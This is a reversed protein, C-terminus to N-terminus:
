QWESVTRPALPIRNPRTSDSRSQQGAGLPRNIESSAADSFRHGPVFGPCHVGIENPLGAEVNYNWEPLVNKSSGSFRRGSGRIKAGFSDAHRNLLGVFDPVVALEDGPVVGREVHHRVDHMVARRNKFANAAVRQ